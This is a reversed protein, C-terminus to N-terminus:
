LFLKPFIAGNLHKITNLPFLEGVGLYGHSDIYFGYDASLIHEKLCFKDLAAMKVTKILIM